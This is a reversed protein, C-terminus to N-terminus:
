FLIKRHRLHVNLVIGVALSLAIYSSGGYSMFPLPLGTVPMMGMTMGINVVIQFAFWIAVGIALFRGFDDKAIAATKLCRYVLFFLAAILAFAGVFGLEEAVVSFIFDTHQAPLFNLLSQPGAMFGRGTFQGSGVAIISQLLHYGTGARDLDPYIFVLLRNRQYERLGYFWLLPASTLGLAALLAMLKSTIGAGYLVALLIGLFVLSTGLDPQIAVLVMPVGVHFVATFLKFLSDIRGLKEVTAALTIVVALKAFESPQLVFGGVNLWRVAGGREVGVVLVLILLGLTVFYLPWRLAGFLQYDFYVAVFVVVQGAIIWLLQRSFYHLPDDFENNLSASWIMLAGFLSVGLYSLYLGWDFSRWLKREFVEFM